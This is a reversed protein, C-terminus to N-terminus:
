TTGRLDPCRRQGETRHDAGIALHLDTRYRQDRDVTGPVALDGVVTKFILRDEDCLSEGRIPTLVSDALYVPIEIDGTRHPLLELLALLYNVRAALVAIPNLDIGM